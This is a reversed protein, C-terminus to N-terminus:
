QCVGELVSILANIGGPKVEIVGKEGYRGRHLLTEEAGLESM